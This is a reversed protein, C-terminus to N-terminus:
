HLPNRLALLQKCSLMQYSLSREKVSLLDGFGVLSICPQIDLEDSVKIKFDM